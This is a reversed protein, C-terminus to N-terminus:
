KRKKKYDRSSFYNIFPQQQKKKSKTVLKKKRQDHHHSRDIHFSFYITCLCACSQLCLFFIYFFVFSFIQFCFSCIRLNDRLCLDKEIIGCQSTTFGKQALGLYM